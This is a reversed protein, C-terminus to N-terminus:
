IIFGAASFGSKVEKRGGYICCTNASYMKRSKQKNTQKAKLRDPDKYKFCSGLLCCM